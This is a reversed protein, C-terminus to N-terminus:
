TSIQVFLEVGHARAAELLVYTGQVDTRLFSGPDLLSRDVHSEAAFNVVVHPREPSEHIAGVVSPDCIDGKIFHYRPNDQVALLNDLNGAYPLKDLVTVQYDPHANLLYRVFNSGIFGAGGPVLFRRM